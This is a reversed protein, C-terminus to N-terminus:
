LVYVETNFHVYITQIFKEILATLARDLWFEGLLFVLGLCLFGKMSNKDLATWSIGLGYGIATVRNDELFSLCTWIASSLMYKM